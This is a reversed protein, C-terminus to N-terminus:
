ENHKILYHQLRAAYFGDTGNIHPLLQVAGDPLRAELPLNRMKDGAIQQSWQPNELLFQSVQQQNEEEELSCTCYLLFGGSKIARAAARLLDAQLDILEKFQSPDKKWRADAQRRLSGTGSCPADLLAYDLSDAEVFYNRADAITIEISNLQLRNQQAGLVQLREASTDTALLQGTDDVWEALHTTKGGVGAALDWGKRNRGPRLLEVMVMSGEGQVTFLGEHYEALDRPDGGSVVTLGWPSIVTPETEVGHMKLFMQLGDRTIWRRNVRLTVPPTNNNSQLLASTEDFGFRKLWREVLWAPHSYFAALYAVPDTAPDPFAIEAVDRQLRRLVANVLKATGEHGYRRALSVADHVTAHAPIRDLLTMQYASMRLLLRIPVPLSSLPKDLLHQIQYDLRGQWRLTGDVLATVLGRDRQDLNSTSLIHDLVANASKGDELQLLTSLALARPFSVTM